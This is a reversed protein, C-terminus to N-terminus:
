SLWWASILKRLPTIGIFYEDQKKIATKCHLILLKKIVLAYRLRPSNTDLKISELVQRIEAYIDFISVNHPLLERGQQKLTQKNKLANLYYHCQGILNIDEHKNNTILNSAQWFEGINDKYLNQFDYIETFAYPLLLSQCDTVAYILKNSVSEKIENNLRLAKTLPHRPKSEQYRLLEENWWSLKQRAIGLDQVKTTIEIVEHEIAFLISLLCKTNDEQYLLAYYLDSGDYQSKQIFSLTEKDM